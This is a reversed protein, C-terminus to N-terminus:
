PVRWEMRIKKPGPTFALTYSGWGKPIEFVLATSTGFQPLLPRMSSANFAPKSMKALPVVAGRSDTLEFDQARVELADTGKNEFGIDVVLFQRGAAPKVGGVKEATRQAQEVTVTWPGVKLKEGVVGHTVPKSAVAKPAPAASVSSSAAPSTGSIVICGTLALSGALLVLGTLIRRIM